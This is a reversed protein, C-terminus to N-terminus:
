EKNTALDPFATHLYHATEHSEPARVLAAALLPGYSSAIREIPLLLASAYWRPDEIHTGRINRLRAPLGVIMRARQTALEIARRHDRARLYAVIRPDRIAPHDVVVKMLAYAAPLRMDNTADAMTRSGRPADIISYAVLLQALDKRLASQQNSALMEAIDATAVCRTGRLWADAGNERVLRARRACIASLTDEIHPSLLPQRSRDYVLHRKGDDYAVHELDLRVRMPQESGGLSSLGAALRHAVGKDPLEEIIRADLYWLPSPYDPGKRAVAFDLQALAILLRQDAPVGGERGGAIAFLAEDFERLCAAIDGSKAIGQWRIREVWDAIARSVYSVIPESRGAVLVVGSTAATYALGNRQVFAVRHFERLGLGAGMTVVAAAAESAIAASRVVSSRGDSPLDLRGRRFLDTLGAYGIKGDWVPLWVEGRSAELTSASGYGGAIGRVAFPFVSRARRAAGEVRSELQRAAASRFCLSGEIMFVYDWPNVLSGADFGSSGNVGGAHRASFQGIAVGPTLAVSAEEELSASLQEGAGIAPIDGVVDLAREAFNVAFDLRGDNGGSGFLYPYIVDDQTIGVVADIWALGEEPLQARLTRIFEDKQGTTIMKQRLGSAVYEKFIFDLVRRYANWRFSKTSRVQEIVVVARDRKTGEGEELDFGAGNNWPNAIPTPCYATLFFTALAERELRTHLVFTAGDWSARADPDAQLAVIRFIGLAKLYGLLTENRCGALKFDNM